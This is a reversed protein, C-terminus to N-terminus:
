TFGLDMGNIKIALIKVVYQGDTDYYDVINTKENKIHLNTNYVGISM